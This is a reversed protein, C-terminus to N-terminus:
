QKELNEVFLGLFFGYVAGVPKFLLNGIFLYTSAVTIGAILWFYEEIFSVLPISQKAKEFAKALEDQGVEEQSQKSLEQKVQSLYQDSNVQVSLANFLIVFEQVDPDPKQTLKEFQPTSIVSSIGQKQGEVFVIASADTFDSAVGQEKILSFITKEELELVIEKQSPLVFLAVSVFLALAVLGNVQSVASGAVRLFVLSKLESFKIFSAEIALVLAVLYVVGVIWFEQLNQFFLIAAVAFLVFPGISVAYLHQRDFVSALSSVLAITLPFFLVFLLFGLSFFISIITGFGNLGLLTEISIGTSNLFFGWLIMSVFVLFGSAFFKADLAFGGNQPQIKEQQKQPAWIEESV